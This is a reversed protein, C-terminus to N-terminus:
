PHDEKPISIHWQWWRTIWEKYPIGYPASDKSFVGPNISDAHTFTTLSSIALATLAIGAMTFKYLQRLASTNGKEEM